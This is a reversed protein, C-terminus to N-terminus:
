GAKKLDVDNINGPPLQIDATKSSTEGNGQRPVDKSEEALSRDNKVEKKNLRRM